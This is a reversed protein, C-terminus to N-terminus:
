AKNEFKGENTFSELESNSYYCPSQKVIDYQRRDGTLAEERYCRWKRTSYTHGKDYRAFLRGPCNNNGNSNWKVGCHDDRLKQLEITLYFSVLNQIM